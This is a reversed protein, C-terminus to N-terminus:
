PESHRGADRDRGRRRTRRPAAALRDIESPALERWAGAPLGGLTQPGFRVRRLWRAPHGIADLMRRVERKRGELLVVSFVDGQPERRVRTVHAARAPGDELEVGSTLRGLTKADPFGAVGAHYEREVEGSPHLLRNAVDGQNTLILLGETDRDLRGVYRLKRVDRPLLDYVTREGRADGRTTLTGAPKHFLIWRPPETRVTRGDVQVLDASPDVRTGLETVVRGNVLVRGARM